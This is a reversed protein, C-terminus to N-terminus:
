QCCVPAPMVTVPAPDFAVEDAVEDHGFGVRLTGTGATGGTVDFQYNHDTVRAVTALSSVPNFTLGGFHEAEVDDLDEQAANFFKLRVRVTQGATFTYPASVAVDNVLVNYTVPTHDPAAQTEDSGCATVMAVSLTAPTLRLLARVISKM